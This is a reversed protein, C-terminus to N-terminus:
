GCSNYSTGLSSSALGHALSFALCLLPLPNFPSPSPQDARVLTGGGDLDALVCSFEYSRPRHKSPLPRRRKSQGYQSHHLAGHPLNNTRARVCCLRYGPTHNTHAHHTCVTQAHQITHLAHARAQFFGTHLLYGDKFFGALLLRRPRPGFCDVLYLRGFYGALAPVLAVFPLLVLQQPACTCATSTNYLPHSGCLRM